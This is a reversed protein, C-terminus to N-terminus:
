SKLVAIGYPPLKVLGNTAAIKFAACGECKSAAEINGAELVYTDAATFAAQGNEDVLELAVDHPRYNVLLTTTVGDKEMVLAEASLPDSTTAHRFLGAGDTVSRIVHYMPFVTAPTTHFHTPAASGEETEMVGRLGTTQFLTLSAVGAQAVRHICGATWAAGLLSMQRVDAQAPMEGPSHLPGKQARTRFNVPSVHVPMNPYLSKLSELVLTQGALNEALTANDFQHACPRLPVFVFDMLEAPPRNNNLQFFDADTGGGILGQLSARAAKLSEPSTAPKGKTLVLWRIAGSATKATLAAIKELAQEPASAPLHLVADLGCGLKDAAALSETLAREWGEVTPDVDHRLHSIALERLRAVEKESLPAGHYAQCLGLAPRAPGRGGIQIRVPSAPRLPLPEPLQGLLRMTIKQSVAQGAQLTAPMPIRQPTSYSKFSADTWNRQDEIEFVDGLFTIEFTLGEGASHRLTHFDHLGKVPQAPDIQAGPFARAATDGSVHVVECPEGALTAPHLLCLGIRNKKFTKGAKGNFAFVITGTADGSITANWVFDVDGNRHTSTYSAEFGHNSTTLTADSIEGPITNWFSDRVAPYLRLILERGALRLHRLQGDEYELHLPGATLATPHSPPTPLGHLALHISASSSM